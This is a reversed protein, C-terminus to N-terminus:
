WVPLSAPSGRLRPAGTILGSQAPLNGKGQFFTTERSSFAEARWFAASGAETGPFQVFVFGKKGERAGRPPPLLPPSSGQPLQLLPAGDWHHNSVPPVHM